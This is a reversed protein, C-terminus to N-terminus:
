LDGIVKMAAVRTKLLEIQKEAINNYNYFDDTSMTKVDDVTKARKEALSNLLEMNRESLQRMSSLLHSGEQELITDYPQSGEQPTMREVTQLSKNSSESKTEQTGPESHLWSVPSTESPGNLESETKKQETPKMTDGQGCGPERPTQNIKQELVPMRMPKSSQIATTVSVIHKERVAGAAKREKSQGQWGLRTSKGTSYVDCYKSCQVQKSTTSVRFTRMCHPCRREEMEIKFESM